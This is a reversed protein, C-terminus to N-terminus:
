SSSVLHAHTIVDKRGCLRIAIVPLQSSGVMESLLWVLGHLGNCSDRRHDNLLFSIGDYSDKRLASPACSMWRWSSREWSGSM